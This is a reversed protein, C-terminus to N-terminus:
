AQTLTADVVAVAAVDGSGRVDMVRVGMTSRGFSGVSAITTRM